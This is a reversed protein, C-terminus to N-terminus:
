RCVLTHQKETGYLLIAEADESNAPEWINLSPISQTYENGKTATIFRKSRFHSLSSLKNQSEIGFPSDIMAPLAHCYTPTTAPLQFILKKMVHLLPHPSFPPCPRM